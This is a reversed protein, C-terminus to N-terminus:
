TIKQIARKAQYRQLSSIPVFILLLPKLALIRKYIPIKLRQCAILRARTETLRFRKSRRKYSNKDERYYILPEQINHLTFGKEYFKLWLHYDELRQRTLQNDSYGGVELLKEHKMIVTPHIFPAGLLMTNKSPKEVLKRIGWIGDEDLLYAWSGCADCNNNDMYYVQKELRNEVMLDDADHRMIYEGTCLTLCKNLTRPLGLNQPNKILRIRKEKKEFDKAIDFTRDTSGDDCLILEWNKYTQRIISNITETLTVECNFIGMIISVKRDM